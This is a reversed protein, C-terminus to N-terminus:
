KPRNINKLMFCFCKCLRRGTNYKNEFSTQFTSSAIKKLNILSNLVVIILMCLMLLHVNCIVYIFFGDM